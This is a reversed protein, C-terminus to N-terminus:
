VPSPKNAALASCFACDVGPSELRYFGCSCRITRLHKPQGLDESSDGGSVDDEENIPDGPSYNEDSLLDDTEANYDDTDFGPDSDCEDHRYADPDNGPLVDKDADQSMTVSGGVTNGIPTKRELTNLLESVPPVAM